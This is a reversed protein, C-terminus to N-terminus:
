RKTAALARQWRAETERKVQALLVLRILNIGPFLLAWYRRFRERSAADTTRVRTETSIVSTLDDRPDVRLTFAIKAYGPEAFHLFEDAPLARFVPSPQWPQTVSAFVLERGPEEAVVRWGIAELQEPLGGSPAPATSRAGMLLERMRFLARVLPSSEFNTTGVTDIALEAPAAVTTHHSVRVECEPMVKDLLEDGREVRGYRLWRVAASLAYGAIAIAKVAVIARVIAGVNPKRPAGAASGDYEALRAIREFWCRKCRDSARAVGGILTDHVPAFGCARLSARLSELTRARLVLRYYFAPMGMTVVIRASRGALLPRPFRRQGSAPTSEELAFGPRFTQELFAKCLAPMDGLWLPYLLTVHEAWAITAQAERIAEPPRGDYFDDPDRLLPFDLRAVEIRRVENGAARAAEAYRDALAHGLRKESPDPHGDIIAIRAM